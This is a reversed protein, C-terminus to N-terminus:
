QRRYLLWHWGSLDSYRAVRELVYREGHRALAADVPGLDGIRHLLLWDPHEDQEVYVIRRDPPLYRNYFRIVTHTRFRHDGAVTPLRATAADSV